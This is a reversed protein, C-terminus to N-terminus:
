VNAVWELVVIASTINPAGAGNSIVINGASTDIRLDINGNPAISAYPLPRMDPQDTICTGYIHVFQTFSINGYSLTTATGANIAGFLYVQRFSQNRQNALLFYSNGTIAPRTTPYLGNTRDNVAGAVDVYMRNVELALQHIEEPFERATRLFAIQNIINNNM